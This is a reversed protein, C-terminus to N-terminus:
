GLLSLFLMGLPDPPNGEKTIKLKKTQDFIEKPIKAQYFGDRLAFLHDILSLRVDRLFSVAHTPHKFMNGVLFLDLTVFRLRFPMVVYNVSYSDTVQYLSLKRECGM